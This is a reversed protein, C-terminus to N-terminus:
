RPEIVLHYRTPGPLLPTPNGRVWDEHGAGHFPSLPHGSQGGPMELYSRDEHGPSIGFRESAGFSRGQVRPMDVDGPLPEAPMDLFRGLWGPLAVALPHAIQATNAEGWTRAALGGPRDGLDDATKKAAALLLADWDHWRPDLLNIPRTQLMAWVAGEAEAHRPWEFDTFRAKTRAIFPALVAERVNQRFTRVIRYDVSDVAAHGSWRVTAAKLGALSPDDSHALTERLAPM